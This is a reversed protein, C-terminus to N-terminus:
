HRGEGNSLFGIDVLIQGYIKAISTKGTGPNGLFVRNLSYEVLAKENLERKFNYKMTEILAEVTKKVANLGIMAQLELWAKSTKLAKSPDPGILDTGTFLFDDVKATSQRREQRIRESQRETIRSLANEVARANAFGDRGRGRGIRRAVIRCYLGGLGDDVKMKKKYAKEIYSVLIQMLENDDFDDFKLEHPFRDPLGPNHAFFKEMPRQYGALIFVVKGRLNEIEALLFDLVQPGGLSSGQVLQYAEDIFFAGGGDKLLGEITKQCESVGENALRSGTTEIFKDGPIVGMSGLSKAYLRAVTTKGTGPNGLLVSGFREDVLSRNQRIATEVKSKIALFKAKVSELGIMEMLQDIEQSQANQFKKQHDWDNRAPSSTQKPQAPQAPQAPQTEQQQSRSTHGQIDPDDAIPRATAQSISSLSTAPETEKGEISTVINPVKRPAKMDEIEQRHQELVRARELDDTEDNRLKRLYSAEEQAEALQKAYIEQKRQREIEL